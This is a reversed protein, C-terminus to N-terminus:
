GKRPAQAATRPNDSSIVIGKAATDGDEAVPGAAGGTTVGGADAGVPVAPHGDGSDSVGLLDRFLARYELVARRLEETGATGAQDTTRLAQRYGDLRPAHHVSLDALFEERNSAPYGRDTAVAVVLAAATETAEAPSNVFQEQAATWQKEYGAQQEASLPRIDLRAARRRRGELQAQARWPGVKDVLRDYEGGFQRRLAARRTVQIRLAAGAVLLVCVIVLAIIAGVPMNVEM